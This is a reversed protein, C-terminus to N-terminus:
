KPIDSYAMVGNKGHSKVWYLAEDGRSLLEDLNKTDDPYSAIGMSATLTIDKSIGFNSVDIKIRKIEESLRRALGIAHEKGSQPLLIIIEDGGYRCPFDIKRITRLICQSIEKLVVDGVQHGFSDNIEKFYDVDIWILSLRQNFRSARYFEEQFRQNFYRRIPLQTLDDYMSMEQIKEFLIINEIALAILSSFSKLLEIHSKKIIVRSLLNDVVLMGVKSYDIKLPLYIIYERCVIDEDGLLIDTLTSLGSKMPITDHSIDNIRTTRDISYIGCLINKQEDIRYLRIRDFGFFSELGRMMFKFGEKERVSKAFIRGLSAAINLNRWYSEKIEEFDILYFDKMERELSTKVKKLDRQTFKKGDFREIRFIFKKEREKSVPSKFLYPVYGFVCKGQKTVYEAGSEISSFFDKSSKIWVYECHESITDFRYRLFAKIIGGSNIYEFVTLNKLSLEKSLDLIVKKIFDIEKEKM